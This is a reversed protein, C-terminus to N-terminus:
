RSLCPLCELATFMANCSYDAWSIWHYWWWCFARSSIEGFFIKAVEVRRAVKQICLLPFMYRSRGLCTSASPSSRAGFNWDHLDKAPLCRHPEIWIPIRRERRNQKCWYRCKSLKFVEALIAIAFTVFTCMAFAVILANWCARGLVVVLHPRHENLVHLTSSLRDLMPRVTLPIDDGDSMVGVVCHGTDDQPWVGLVLPCISCTHFTQHLTDWITSYFMGPMESICAIWYQPVELLRRKSTSKFSYITFISSTKNPWIRCRKSCLMENKLVDTDYHSRDGAPVDRLVEKTTALFFMSNRRCCWNLLEIFNFM